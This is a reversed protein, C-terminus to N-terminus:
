LTRYNEFLDSSNEVLELGRCLNSYLLSINLIDNINEFVHIGADFNEFSKRFLDKIDTTTEENEETSTVHSLMLRCDGAISMIYSLLRKCDINNNNQEMLQFKFEISYCNLALRLYRLYSGYNRDQDCRNVFCFYALAAKHLIISKLRQDCTLRNKYKHQQQLECYHQYHHQHHHRHIHYHVILEVELYKLARTMCEIVEKEVDEQSM